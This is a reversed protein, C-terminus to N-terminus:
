AAVRLQPKKVEPQEILAVLKSALDRAAEEVKPTGDDFKGDENAKQKLWKVLQEATFTQGPKKEKTLDAFSIKAAGEVDFDEPKRNKDLKCVWSGSQKDLRMTAKGNSFRSYWFALAERRQGNPLADLLSTALTTDGHDRIHALTSVAVLHIREQVKGAVRRIGAIARKCADRDLITINPM